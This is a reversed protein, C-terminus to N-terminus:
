YRSFKWVVDSDSHWSNFRLPFAVLTGATGDYKEIEYDLLTTNDANTFVIDFGEVTEVHGDPQSTHKLWNGVDGASLSILVPFDTQDSPVKTHEITITRYYNWGASATPVVSLLLIVVFLLALLRKLNHGREGASRRKAKMM